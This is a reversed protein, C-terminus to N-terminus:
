TSGELAEGNNAEWIFHAQAGSKNDDRLWADRYGAPQM